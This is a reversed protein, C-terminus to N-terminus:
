AIDEVIILSMTYTQGGISISTSKITGIDLQSVGEANYTVTLLVTASSGFQVTCYRWEYETTGDEATWAVSKDGGNVDDFLDYSTGAETFSVDPNIVSAITTAALTTDTLGETVTPTITFNIIPVTFTEGADLDWMTDTTSNINCMIIIKNLNDDTTVNGGGDDTTSVSWTVGPTIEAVEPEVAVDTLAFVLGLIALFVFPWVIKKFLATTVGKWAWLIIAIVVAVIILIYGIQIGYWSYPDGIKAASAITAMASLIFVMLLPLIKRLKM